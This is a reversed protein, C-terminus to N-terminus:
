AAIKKQIRKNRFENWWGNARLVRLAAKHNVSDTHRCAGPIKLRKQPVSRHASEVEGSGTPYGKEKFANYNVCDYFRGIYGILRKVRRDSSKRYEDELEKKIRGVEGNSIANLRSEVWKTRVKESIGLAEATDYLHDKLHVKDSIFQMNPFQIESEEKLGIGGDAVGIILTEPTMGTLVSANFLQGVVEPYSGMKGVYTESVSDSERTLGIRVERRNIEKKREPKGYVSTTEDTNSKVPVGTRLECGDPEILMKESGKEKEGYLKGAEYLKDEVYESAEDAVKKTVRLVTSASCDYKYHERFRVAAHGFSEESGFDSLARNVAESRGQHTIGM